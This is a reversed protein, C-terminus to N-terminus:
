PTNRKFISLFKRIISKKETYPPAAYVPMPSPPMEHQHDGDGYGTPLKAEQPVAGAPPPDPAEDISDSDNCKGSPSQKLFEPPAYVTLSYPDMDRFDDNYKM